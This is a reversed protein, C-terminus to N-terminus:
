QVNVLTQEAPEKPPNIYVATPPLDPTPPMNVFREPHLRYAEALVAGRRQVIDAARGEHVARPTLHAIGAHRHDNNYWDFFSRCFARADEISGFRKPFTPDYKLTKFQSESYPNDNSVRPRSHSRVIGLDDFLQAVGKSRMSSGRDAHVTLAGPTIGQREATSRFMREALATSEYNAVMWAVVYRSFIDLVVYLHFYSWKAPGLLKTIDWSWVENPRTALLEPRTYIPHQLQDRRERLEANEGLIRYMTRFSCLYRQEDLLTAHIERPALDVFRDSHLVARVAARESASLTRPPSPRKKLPRVSVVQSRYYTARSLGLAACLNRIPAQISLDTVARM